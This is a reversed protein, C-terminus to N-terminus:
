NNQLILLLLVMFDYLVIFYLWSILFSIDHVIIRVIKKKLNKNKRRGKQHIEKKESMIGM